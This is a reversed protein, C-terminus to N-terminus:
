SFFFVVLASCIRNDGHPFAIIAMPAMFLNPPLLFCGFNPNIEVVMGSGLRYPIAELKHVIAFIILILLSLRALLFSM